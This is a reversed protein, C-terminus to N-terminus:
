RRSVPTHCNMVKKYLKPKPSQVQSMPWKKCFFKIQSGNVAGRQDGGESRRNTDSGTEDCTPKLLSQSRFTVHLFTGYLKHDKIALIETIPLVSSAVIKQILSMSDPFDYLLHIHDGRHKVVCCMTLQLPIFV